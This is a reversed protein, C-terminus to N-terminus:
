DESECMLKYVEEAFQHVEEKTEECEDGEHWHTWIEYIDEKVEEETLTFDWVIRNLIDTLENEAIIEYKNAIEILSDLESQRCEIKRNEIDLRIGDM